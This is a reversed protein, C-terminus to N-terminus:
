EPNLTALADGTAASLCVRAGVDHRQEHNVRLQVSQGDELTAGYLWCAGEYRAWNIVANAGGDATVCLDDPRFMVLREAGEGGRASDSLPQVPVAGLGTSASSGDASVDGRLFSAEGLFSAVFRSAPSAFCERASGLQELRGDRLVGVRDGLSLAEAQDHTVWIAPVGAQKLSDRIVWRLEDKLAEDLNSLPEDLLVLEPEHALTRALAVRQKQGGSLEAPKVQTKDAIGLLEIWHDGLGKDRLRFCVNDRVTLHPFLAFDQFVMGIRREEPAVYRESSCSWHRTHVEGSALPALGAIVKLVTTKGCGTPGVLTLLEAAELTLSLSRLVPQGDYVVSVQDLELM